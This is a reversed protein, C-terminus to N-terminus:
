IEIGHGLITRQLSEPAEEFLILDISIEPDLAQLQGVAKFYLNGPLVWVALDIDARSHFLEEQAVSGFLVVKEASFTTRLLNAAQRALSFAKRYRVKVAEEQERRRKGANMLYPSLDTVM